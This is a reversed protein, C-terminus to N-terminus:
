NNKDLYKDLMSKWITKDYNMYKGAKNRIPDGAYFREYLEHRSGLSSGILDWSLKFLKTKEVAGIDKGRFYKDLQSRIPSDFDNLSSPIQIFGGAGILQLLELARPYYVTGLNRATEIFSFNPVYVGQENKKGSSESAIVLAKITEAQMLLEGLKEQVHLYQNAGISEAIAHGLAATFELKIQLRIIAQHYALSNAVLDNKFAWVGEPNDHLLVREWPIFVDDFILVADMEDYRSSLPYDTIPYNDYPERCIMHLGKSDAPVILVSALAKEHENWKVVPFIILDNSYPAATAIMKGGNVYVGEDTKKTIRLLGQDHAKDSSRDIQPDRQVITLFRNETRALDYFAQIKGSFHKDYEEYMKRNAYWGTLRSRAYDSLRSMTGSTALSWTEAAKKRKLLDKISRPVLFSSHIREMKEKDIFSIKDQESPSDMMDFLQTITSLTGAFHPNTTVDTIVGNLWVQRADKLSNFYRNGYNTM